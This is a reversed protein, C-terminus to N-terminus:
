HTMRTLYDQKYAYHPGFSIRRDSKISRWLFPDGYKTELENIKLQINEVVVQSNQRCQWETAIHDFSIKNEQSYDEFFIKDAIFAGCVSPDQFNNKLENSLNNFIDLKAGQTSFIFNM